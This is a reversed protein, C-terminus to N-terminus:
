SLAKMLDCLEKRLEKISRRKSNTEDLLVRRYFRCKCKKNNNKVNKWRTFKPYVGTARATVLIKLDPEHKRLKKAVNQLCREEVYVLAM